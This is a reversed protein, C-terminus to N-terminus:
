RITVQLTAESESELAMVKEEMKDFASLASSTDLGQEVVRIRHEVRNEKFSLKRSAVNLAMSSWLSEINSKIKVRSLLSSVFKSALNSWLQM